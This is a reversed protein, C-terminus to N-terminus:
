GAHAITLIFIGGEGSAISHPVGPELSLLMGAGVTWSRRDTQLVVCGELVHITIPGEARHEHINGGPPVAVLLVRLSGNRIMTRAIRRGTVELERRVSQIERALWLSVSEDSTYETALSM